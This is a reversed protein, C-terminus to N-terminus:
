VGVTTFHKLITTKKSKRTDKPEKLRLSALDDQGVM